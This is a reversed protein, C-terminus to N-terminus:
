KAFKTYEDDGRRTYKSTVDTGLLLLRNKQDFVSDVYIAYVDKDNCLLDKYYDIPLLTASFYVSARALRLRDQLQASPDICYLHLNFNKDEDFDCYIRYQARDQQYAIATFNRLRFYFDLVEDQYIGFKIEKKFLQEFIMQLNDCAYVLTDIDELITIDSDCQRKYELM